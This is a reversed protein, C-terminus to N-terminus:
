RAEKCWARWMHRYAVELARVFRPEDMVPSRQMRERLSARLAALRTTDAAFKLALAVYQQPTRAIWEQLGM